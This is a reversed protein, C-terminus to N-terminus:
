NNRYIYYTTGEFDVEEENGDYGNINEGRNGSNDEVFKDEDLYNRIFGEVGHTMDQFLSRLGEEEWDDAESDTLVLYEGDDKTEDRRTDDLPQGLWARRLSDAYDPVHSDKILHFLINEVYLHEKTLKIYIDEQTPKTPPKWTNMSLRKITEKRKEAKKVLHVLSEKVEEYVEDIQEETRSSIITATILGQMGTDLIRRFDVAIERFQEPTKGTKVKRENVTFYESYGNSILAPEIKLFKALAMTKDDHEM